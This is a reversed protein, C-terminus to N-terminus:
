GFFSQYTYIHPSVASGVYSCVTSASGLGSSAPWLGSSQAAEEPTPLADFMQLQTTLTYHTCAAWVDM